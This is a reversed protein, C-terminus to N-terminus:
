GKESPGRTWVVLELNDNKVQWVFQARENEASPDPAWLSLRRLIKPEPYNPKDSM